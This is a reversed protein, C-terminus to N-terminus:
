LQNVWAEIDADRAFTAFLGERIRANQAINRNSLNPYAAYWVLTPHQANRGFTKFRAEDQAGGGFLGFTRPYTKTNGWISNLGISAGDIFDGLYGEYSGDFNSFFLLERREPLLVWRAFHISPIGGLKGRNYYVRHVFGIVALALRLIGMRFSGDKVVNRLCLHNQLYLDERATTAAYRAADPLEPGPPDSAELERLQQKAWWYLGAGALALATLSRALATVAPGVWVGLLGALWVLALVIAVPIAASSSRVRDILPGVVRIFFPLTPPDQAWRALEADAAIEARVARWIERPTMSKRDPFTDVSDEVRERLLAERQIEQVSRGRWGVYWTGPGVDHRLWYTTLSGSGSYGRCHAYVERLVGGALEELAELFAFVPGDVNGEFALYSGVPSSAEQRILSLSCYHLMPLEHFAIRGVGPLRPDLSAVRQALQDLEWDDDSTLPTIITFACQQTADAM